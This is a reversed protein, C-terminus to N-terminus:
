KKSKKPKDLKDLKFLRIIVYIFLLVFSFNVLAYVFKGWTFAVANSGSGVIFQHNILDKGLWVDLLPTIFSDLLQKMLTQAQLGIIFGVALGVVAHERLFSIFGAAQERVLDDPELLVTVRPKRGKHGAPQTIRVDGSETHVVSTETKPKSQNPSVM